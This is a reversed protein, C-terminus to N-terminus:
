LSGDFREFSDSEPPMEISNQLPISKPTKWSFFFLSQGAKATM